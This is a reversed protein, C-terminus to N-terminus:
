PAVRSRLWAEFRDTADTLSDTREAVAELQYALELPDAAYRLGNLDLFVELSAYATRKNGDLFAQAQSIGVALLAAQRVLDAQEYHAAMQPRMVASELAPESRLPAPAFGTREMIAQHLTIVDLASLFRPAPSAM